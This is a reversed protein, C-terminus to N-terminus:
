PPRACNSKPITPSWSGGAKRHWSARACNAAASTKSTRPNPLSAVPKRAPPNSDDTSAPTRNSANLSARPKSPPNKLPDFHSFRRSSRRNPLDIGGRDQVMIVRDIANAFGVTVSNNYEGFPTGIALVEDGAKLDASDGMVAIGPLDQDAALQLELVAVDQWPDTGVLTAEVTTGDIFTVEFADGGDVVHNNTVVHGDADIIFGSGSGVPVLQGFSRRTTTDQQLNVITVVAPNVLDAVEAASMATQAAAPQM